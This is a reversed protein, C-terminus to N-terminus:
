QPLHLATTLRLPSILTSPEKSESEAVEVREEEMLAHYGIEAVTAADLPEVVRFARSKKLHAREQFHTETPGPCLVTVSVGTGELEEALELSFATVYAKTADYVAMRPTGQLAVGGVNLIRGYDKELMGPLCLHTLHTLAVINVHILADYEWWAVKEFRGYMGLGADNVLIDVVLGLATIKEHLALAGEQVALDQAVAHVEAGYAQRVIEAAHLLPAEERASMILTYGNKAFLKALELGIGSSAGTILVTQKQTKQVDMPM